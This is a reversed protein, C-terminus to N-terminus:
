AEKISTEGDCDPCFYTDFTAWVENTNVSVWADACVDTSGCTACVYTM